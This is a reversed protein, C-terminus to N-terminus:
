HFRNALAAYHLCVPEVMFLLFLAKCRRNRYLPRDAAPGSPSSAAPNRTASEPSRIQPAGPRLSTGAGAPASPVPSQPSRPDPAHPETTRRRRAPPPPAPAPPRSSLHLTNSKTVPISKPLATHTAQLANPQHSKAYVTLLASCCRTHPSVRIEM